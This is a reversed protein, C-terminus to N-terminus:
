KWTAIWKDISAAFIFKYVGQADETTSFRTSIYDVHTGNNKSMDIIQKQNGYVSIGLNKIVYINIEEGDLPSSPLQFFPANRENTAIISSIGQLLLFDFIQTSVDCLSNPIIIIM